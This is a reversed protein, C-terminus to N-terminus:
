DIILNKMLARADVALTPLSETFPWLFINAEAPGVTDTGVIWNKGSYSLLMWLCYKYLFPHSQELLVKNISVSKFKIKVCWLIYNKEIEWDNLLTFFDNKAQLDHLFLPYALNPRYAM